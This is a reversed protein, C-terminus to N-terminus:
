GRKVERLEAALMDAHSLTRVEYTLADELRVHTEDVHFVRFLREGDTLYTDPEITLTTATAV